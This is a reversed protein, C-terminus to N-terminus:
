RTLMGKLLQRARHLQARVTGPALELREAIEEHRYGEVDHLVFVTRAGPPLLAIARELDIRSLVDTSPRAAANGMPDPSAEDDALTVRAERRQEARRSELVVNVTLRHLWTDFASEGRFQPLKEWARVFADHALEKGRQPSGTMRLCLAFVRGACREYLQRFAGVDGAAARAALASNVDRIEDAGADTVFPLPLSSVTPM